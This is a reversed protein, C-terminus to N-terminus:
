IIRKFKKEIEYKSMSIIVPRGHPCHYPNELTLLESILKEAEERALTTNGKVAAKCSMTAIRQLILDSPGLRPRDTMTDLMDLFLNEYSLLFLDSPVANIRYERGGFHEIEFGLATFDALNTEMVEAERPSLSLVPAPSVLQSCIEHNKYRAVTREYLIKEHAAHQDILFLENDMEVIWYTKFLQGIIRYQRPQGASHMFEERTERGEEKKFLEEPLEQQEGIFIGSFDVMDKPASNEKLSYLSNREAMYRSGSDTAKDSSFAKIAGSIEESFANESEEMSGAAPPDLPESGERVSGETLERFIERSRNIEFNEPLRVKPPIPKPADSLLTEQILVEDRITKGILASLERFFSDGNHIRVELKSPHVNVDVAGAPFRFFLCTFPFKHLMFYPKYAEEVAKSILSSRVYRGDIFFNEYTRNGRAIVPKGLFGSLSFLEGEYSVPILNEYIDRGFVSYVADRANGKGSTYLVTKGQNIFQFSIEPHSVALRSVLEAIYNGETVSSKLFKRRAPVNFFVDRIIFTTGDPCGIETFSIEEGGSIEYHSGLFDEKRKTSLEVRCVAAISSLAEGRFGLSRIDSLESASKLKSTAHRLFATPIDSAEIGKGNDTVRLFSIGGGKIEVTVATSGADIANEILEKAISSPREIVEGAAIQNITDSDLLHITGM